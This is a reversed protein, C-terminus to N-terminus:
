RRVLTARFVATLNDSRNDSYREMKQRLSLRSPRLTSSFACAENPYLMMLNTIITPCAESKDGAPRNQASQKV